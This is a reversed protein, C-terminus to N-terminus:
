GTTTSSASRCVSIDVIRNDMVTSNRTGAALELATGGLRSFESGSIEIREGRGARVAGPIRAMRQPTGVWVVGAQNDAYGEPGSPQLWTSYNFTIGRLAIDHLPAIEDPVVSFGDVMMYQGSKRVLKM